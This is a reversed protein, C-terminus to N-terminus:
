SHGFYTKDPDLFEAIRHAYQREGYSIIHMEYLEAMRRLFERAYPRIKTYFNTGKLKYHLVDQFFILLLNMNTGYLM